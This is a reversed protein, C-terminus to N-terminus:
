LNLCEYKRLKEDLIHHPFQCQDQLWKAARLIDKDSFCSGILQLGIPLDNSTLCVPVSIAPLGALNVPLTINDTMMTKGTQANECYKKYTIATSDTTPALLIDIGSTFANEYDNSILRRVKMAQEFYKEYNDKLLFYNGNLIRGRAIGHFGEHRTEAYLEETSDGIKSRHGFEIGDYISMNSAVEVHCIIDYCAVGYQHNPLSVESIRAGAREFMDVCRSWAELINDTMDPSHYEKPIGIHLEKVSIEEPLTIQHFPSPLTTSDLPDHGGIVNLVVATDEVYKTLIGPCDFSNVLPVLGHRSLLGYTPKYGVVGCHAGPMRVSGGTDSGLAAFCVGTAVAVASGGSSGGSVFWDSDGISEVHGTSGDSQNMRRLEASQEFPYGWPNRVPGHVDSDSFSGMAFEDMNLKGMSVAGEDLMRQVVTATYPPKYGLLTKSACTTEVSSTSFNDKFAVTIGDLVRHTEGKSIREDTKEANYKASDFTTTVFFNLEHLEEARKRCRNYLEKASLTGEKIQRVIERITRKSM